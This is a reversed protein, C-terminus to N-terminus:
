AWHISHLVAYASKFLQRVVGGFLKPLTNENDSAIRAPTRIKRVGARMATKKDCSLFGVDGVGGVDGVRRCFVFFLCYIILM